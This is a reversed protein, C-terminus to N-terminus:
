VWHNQQDNDRKSIAIENPIYGIKLCVWISEYNNLSGIKPARFLVHPNCCCVSVEAAIKLSIFLLCWRHVLGWGYFSETLNIHGYRGANFGPWSFVVVLLWGPIARIKQHSDVSKRNSFWWLTVTHKWPSKWNLSLMSVGQLRLCFDDSFERNLRSQIGIESQFQGKHIETKYRDSSAYWICKKAGWTSRWGNIAADDVVRLSIRM